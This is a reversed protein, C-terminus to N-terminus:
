ELLLGAKELEFDGPRIHSGKEIRIDEPVIALRDKQVETNLVGAGELDEYASIFGIKCGKEIVRSNGGLVLSNEIEVGDEIVNSPLIVSNKIFTDSGVAVDRFIVSNEVTGNVSVGSGLFSGKIVANQGVYTNSVSKVRLREYLRTFSKDRLYKSIRLNERYYEYSDRFFFSFGPFDAIREFNYFLADDFLFRPFSFFAKDTSKKGTIRIYDKIVNILYKKKVCYLDSPIKGVQVKVIGRTPNLKAMLASWNLVALNGTRGIILKSGINRSNVLELLKEPDELTGADVVISPYKDIGTVGIIDKVYFNGWLPLESLSVSRNFGSYSKNIVEDLLMIHFDYTNKM